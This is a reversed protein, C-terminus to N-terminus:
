TSKLSNGTCDPSDKWKTDCACQGTQYNCSGHSNCHENSYCDFDLFFAVIFPQIYPITQLTELYHCTGVM